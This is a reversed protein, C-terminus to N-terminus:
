NMGKFGSRKGDYYYVENEMNNYKFHNNLPVFKQTIKNTTPDNYSIPRGYVENDDNATDMLRKLEEIEKDRSISTLKHKLEADAELALDFDNWSIFKLDGDSISDDSLIDLIFKSNFPQVHNYFKLEEANSIYGSRRGLRPVNKGGQKLLNNRKGLQTQVLFFSIKKKNAFNWTKQASNENNKM